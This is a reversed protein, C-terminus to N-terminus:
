QLAKRKSKQKASRSPAQRYRNHVCMQKGYRPPPPTLSLVKPIWMVLPDLFSTVQKTSPSIGKPWKKIECM